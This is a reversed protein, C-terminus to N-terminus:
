FDIVKYDGGDCFLIEREENFFSFKSIDIYLCVKKKKFKMNSDYFKVNVWRKYLIEFLVPYLIPEKKIILNKNKEDLKELM